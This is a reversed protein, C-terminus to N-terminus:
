SLALVRSAQPLMKLMPGMRESHFRWLRLGANRTRGVPKKRRSRSAFLRLENRSTNEDGFKRPFINIEASV